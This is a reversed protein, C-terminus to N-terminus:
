ALRDAAEALFADLVGDGVKPRVAGWSNRPPDVRVARAQEQYGESERVLRRAEDQDGSQWADLAGTMAVAAEGWLATADLWPAADTVFGPEVAGSRITAPAEAIAKAYPRLARVAGAEEGADWTRWFAATRRALEPAQPQWPTDGFTPALHELDGLVLLAGTARRDGGALYAMAQRWTAEADYATDNWTFAAAGFVAAKSAYPQNMPNAVIGALHGSLGAERKDYPALLLRGSTNGFDNVPYNDWVFVKRGFLASAAEAQDNTIEPPVVDTGTWMVEVEGDLRTRLTQKYATDTLDGYETPVTQLPHSGEHTAIFTRQVDNLLDSQARAAAERGPEGYAARDAECNWSTYDIDDLPVSFARTGLDYLAQLKAKLDEVHDPDSYCVSAGPSVAFTFRVHNATAREVLEGLEAAKDEPYPERWKDRHYPDDKPAYIYTNAKVDGHFDMQDLREAHTWPTGYFGEVTGRLPMAPHDSVAAGAIRWAGGARQFLQRLSQVAYFQGTADTGALTVSGGSRGGAVRLAYGEAQGPVSTGALSRAIDGRVAPGLRVTLSKAAPGPVADPAVVDVRHAGHAKLERVLRDRAAADTEEDAVVTVRRTVAADDGVREMSRPTPSVPPLRVDAAEAAGAPSSRAAAVPALCSFATATAVLLCTSTSRHRRRPM